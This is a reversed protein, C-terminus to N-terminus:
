LYGPSVYGIGCNAKPVFDGGPPPGEQVYGHIRSAEPWKIAKRGNIEFEEAGVPEGKLNLTGEPPWVCAKALKQGARPTVYVNKGLYVDFSPLETPSPGPGFWLVFTIEDGGEEYGFNAYDMFVGKCPKTGSLFIGQYQSSGTYMFCYLIGMSGQAQFLDVHETASTGHINEGRCRQLYMDPFLTFPGTGSTGSLDIADKTGGGGNMYIGELYMSKEIFGTRFLAETLTGGTLNVEGAISRYNKCTQVVFGRKRTTGPLVVLADKGAELSTSSFTTGTPITVTTPETLSPPTYLLKGTKFAAESREQFQELVSSSGTNNNLIDTNTNLIDENSYLIDENSTLITPSSEFPAAFTSFIAAALKAEPEASEPMNKWIGFANSDFDRYVLAIPVFASWYTHIRELATKLYEAQKAETVEATTWGLESLIMKVNPYGASILYDYMTLVDDYINTSSPFEDPSNKFNQTYPHYVAYDISVGGTAIVEKLFVKAIVSSAGTNNWTASCAIAVKATSDISLIKARIGKYLAAYMAANPGPTLPSTWFTAGNAENWIEWYVDIGNPNGAGGKKYREIAAAVFTEYKGLFTTFSSEAPTSGPIWTNTAGGNAWTPTFVIPMVLTKFGGANLKAFIEDYSAWNYSGGSTTQVLDWRMDCRSVQSHVKRSQKIQNSWLTSSISAFGNHIGYKTTGTPWTTESKFAAYHTAVQVATLAKEYFVGHCMAARTFASGWSNGTTGGTAFTQSTTAGQTEVGDVWIKCTTGNWTLVVHHWLHNDKILGTTQEALISFSHKKLFFSLGSATGVARVEPGGSGHADFIIEPSGDIIRSNRICFEVSVNGIVYNKTSVAGTLAQGLNTIDAFKVAGGPKGNLGVVGLQCDPDYSGTLTNPGKDLATAASTDAMPYYSIIGSEALIAAELLAM